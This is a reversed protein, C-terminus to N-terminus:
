FPHIFLYTLAIYSKSPHMSVHISRLQQNFSQYSLSPQIYIYLSSPASSHQINYIAGSSRDSPLKQTFAFSSRKSFLSSNALSVRVKEVWVLLSYILWGGTVECVGVCVGDCMLGTEREGRDTKSLVAELPLLRGESQAQADTHKHGSLCENLSVPGYM